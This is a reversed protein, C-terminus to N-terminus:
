APCVTECEDPCSILVSNEVAAAPGWLLTDFFFHLLGSIDEAWGGLAFVTWVAENRDLLNEQCDVGVLPFCFCRQFCGPPFARPLSSSM